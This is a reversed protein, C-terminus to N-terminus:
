TLGNAQPSAAAMSFRSLNAAPNYVTTDTSYTTKNMEGNNGSFYGVSSNGTASVASASSNLNASPVAVTTETSYTVKDMTSIPGPSGGGFYGTDYATDYTQDIWVQALDTWTNNFKEEVVEYLGFIGRAVAM